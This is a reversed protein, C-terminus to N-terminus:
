SADPSAGGRLAAACTDALLRTTLADDDVIQRIMRGSAGTREWCEITVVDDRLRAVSVYGMEELLEAADGAIKLRDSATM